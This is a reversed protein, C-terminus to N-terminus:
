QEHPQNMPKYLLYMTQPRPGGFRFWPRDLIYGRLTFSQSYLRIYGAEEFDKGELKFWKPGIIADWFVLTGAPLERLLKLDAERNRTFPPLEWPDRDFVVCGYPHGWVLQVIPQPHAQFWAYAADIARADRSMEAGDAYAYNLYFSMAILLTAAATRFVRSTHSLFEAMRNWGALTILAIAPSISILYRPYGASGLLGFSRFITHLVFLLLFSSTITDLQKRRLLYVIGCFFPALLLPGVIEPLRAPFAVFGAAGYITGTLPWITPWNHKIFLPDGTILLAALWWLLAGTALLATQLGAKLRFRPFIGGSPPVVFLAWLLGLFFGEPRVLIMLSAVLMGAKVWGRHHLRLAIVYVLALLPETMCETGFLFFSPQMWVLAVAFPARGIQLEDALRWTQWAIALSVLLTFLRTADYGFMAPFSYILTFLPRAWVDVLLWPHRWAWRAYLYHLPADQQCSDDFLYLLSAGVAACVILWLFAQLRPSRITHM